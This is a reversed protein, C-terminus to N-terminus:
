RSHEFFHQYFSLTARVSKRGSATITVQSRRLPPQRKPKVGPGNVEFRQAVLGDRGLRLLLQYFTKPSHSVGAKRMQEQIEQAFKPGQLLHVLALFQLHSIPPLRMPWGRVSHGGSMRVATSM